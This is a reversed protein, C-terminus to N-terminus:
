VAIRAFDHPRESLVTEVARALSEDNPVLRWYAENATHESADTWPSLSGHAASTLVEGVSSLGFYSYGAVAAALEEASLCEIAHHVGGNMVYGHALLLSALASDGAGPHVGGDELAARNWIADARSQSM